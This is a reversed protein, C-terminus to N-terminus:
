AQQKDVASSEVQTVSILRLGLDHVKKLL